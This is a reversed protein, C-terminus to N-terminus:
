ATRSRVCSLSRVFYCEGELEQEISQHPPLSDIYDHKYHDWSDFHSHKSFRYQPSSQEAEEETAHKHEREKEEVYKAQWFADAKSQKENMNEKVPLHTIRFSCIHYIIYVYLMVIAHSHTRCFLSVLAYMVDVYYM